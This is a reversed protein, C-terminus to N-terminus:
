KNLKERRKRILKEFEDLDELKSYKNIFTRSTSRYSYYRTKEPNRQRYAKIADKQAQSTKNEM